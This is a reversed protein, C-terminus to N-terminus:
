SVVTVKPSAKVVEGASFVLKIEKTEGQIPAYRGSFSFDDEITIPVRQGDKELYGSVQEKSIAGAFLLKGSFEIPTLDARSFSTEEQVHLGGMVLNEIAFNVGLPIYAGFRLSYEKDAYAYSKGLDLCFLVTRDDANTDGCVSGYRWTAGLNLEGLCVTLDDRQSCSSIIRQLGEFAEEFISFSVPLEVSFGVKRKLMIPHVTFINGQGLGIFHNETDLILSYVFDLDEVNPVDFHVGEVGPYLKEIKDLHFTFEKDFVSIFNGEFDPLCESIEKGKQMWLFYGQEKGCIVEDKEGRFGGNRLFHYSIVTAKAEALYGITFRAKELKDHGEIIIDKVEEGLLADASFKDRKEQLIFFASFLVSIVVFVLLPSFVFGKKGM